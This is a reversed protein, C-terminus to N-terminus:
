PSPQRGRYWVYLATVLVVTLAGLGVTLVSPEGDGPLSDGPPYGTAPLGMPAFLEGVASQAFVGMPGNGALAAQTILVGNVPAQLVTTRVLMEVAEGPGLEPLTLIAARDSLTVVGRSSEASEVRLEPNPTVTIVLDRGPATGANNLSVAWLVPEGPLGLTGEVLMGTVSLAAQFTPEGRSTLCLRDGATTARAEPVCQEATLDSPCAAAYVRRPTDDMALMGLWLLLGFFVATGVNRM